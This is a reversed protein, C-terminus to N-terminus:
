ISILAKFAIKNETALDLWEHVDINVTAYKSSQGMEFYVENPRIESLRNENEYYVTTRVLRNGDLINHNISIIKTTPSYYVYDSTPYVLTWDSSSTVRELVIEFTRSIDEGDVNFAIDINYPQLKIQNETLAPPRDIPANATHEYTLDSLNTPKWTGTAAVPVWMYKGDPGMVARLHISAFDEMENNSLISRRGVITASDDQTTVLIPFLEDTSADEPKLKTIVVQEGGSLAATSSPLKVVTPRSCIQHYIYGVGIYKTVTQAVWSNLSSNWTIVSKDVPNDDVLSFNQLDNIKTPLKKFEWKNNAQNWVITQGTIPLAKSVDTLDTLAPKPLIEAIKGITHWERYHRGDKEVYIDALYTIETNDSNPLNITLSLEQLMTYIRALPRNLVANNVNENKELRIQDFTYQLAM